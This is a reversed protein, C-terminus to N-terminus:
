RTEGRPRQKWVAENAQRAPISLVFLGLGLAVCGLTATIGIVLVEV